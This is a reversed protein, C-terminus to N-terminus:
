NSAGAENTSSDKEDPGCRLARRKEEKLLHQRNNTRNRATQLHQTKKAASLCLGYPRYQSDANMM